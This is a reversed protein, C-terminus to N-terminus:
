ACEEDFRQATRQKRELRLRNEADRCTGCLPEGARRHRRAGADTGHRDVTITNKPRGRKAPQAIRAQELWTDDRHEGARILGHARMPEADAHARCADRVRCQGCVAIAARNADTLPARGEPGDWATVPLGHDGVACLAQTHWDSM